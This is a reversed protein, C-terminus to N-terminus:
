RSLKRAAQVVSRVYEGIPSAFWKEYVSRNAAVFPKTNVKDLRMGKAVLEKGAENNAKQSLARQYRTADDAASLIIKRDQQSLKDWSSKAMLFPTIEYKHGTLSLYKQVEYLKGAYINVLANEQGDVAGRHLANYLESFKIPYAHGGLTNVIDVTVPDSPTTRIKLGKLDRPTLIPRVNNSIHRMGNDWFGLVVLGQEASKLSLAKGPAGDLLRWAEAPSTFLFPLGFANYEPVIASVPGQSNATMDLSGNLLAAVMAADDGFSAGAAVEVVIRGQSKLKVRDAFRQAAKGRPHEPVVAHALTLTVEAYAPVGAFVLAAILSRITMAIM